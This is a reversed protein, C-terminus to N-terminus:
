RSPYNTPGDRFLSGSQYLELQARISDIRARNGQAIALQLAREATKVADPFRDAEAYAAALTITVRINQGGTLADAREALEVAKKGNRVRDEPWTALAWAMNTQADAANPDIELAATYHALAEDIRGMQMLAVALNTHNGSTPAIEVARQLHVVAEDLQRRQLFALGMASHAVAQVPDIQLAKRSQEITEDLKGKKFFAEALNTYAIANESTSAITGTWLLISDRWHAAQVRATVTTAGLIVLALSGLFLRRQRWGACLDVALWTVLLYLGIQPLYTYRDARAQNGVQLIGIVPGLMVLYWLWGTMLYRRERFFFVGVSIAALLVLSLAGSTALGRDSFPYLVALDVPWFMQRLYAVCATLANAVRMSFPIGALTQLTGRQALITAVSSAAALALLPLKEVILRRPVGVVGDRAGAFRNLPWYDLLLLVVPLTVLMPKCMLGAAFLLLVLGYRSASWASRAYRVYAGITLVFFLGSLVDKREAVWAVSEVRLPHIAFIAAVFASRWFAGTMQGLVLFLLIVTATHLVVNSLHHGGPKLGYFHCDLMHSLWTLPHWNAGHFSTFAWVIGETTLGRAVQPNDFVYTDDDFNVFEHRLTQGFVLWTIAVLFLCVGLSKWTAGPSFGESPPALTSARPATKKKPKQGMPNRLIAQLTSFEVSARCGSM